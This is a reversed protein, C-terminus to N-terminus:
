KRWGFLRQRLSRKPLISESLRVPHDMYHSQVSFPANEGMEAHLYNGDPMLRRAKLNDKLLNDLYESLMDRIEASSVPCGVEVRRVQNRTMIDASSLFVKREEGEGFCYIRSHELFRGVISTVTINETKGPIGPVICCIGRIILDIKVGACSAESLKDMLERETVSNAKIIIRGKDGKAIEADMMDMLRNKMSNPAVLLKEYEGCLNGILMNEFLNQADQAVATDATMMCFDTYLTSTKENYNGTGIQTIYSFGSKERRTILCVKAHCKCNDPGYIIRCGAEELERSWDINNQEDFRARLEMLVTVEKGNEAAECLAKAIASNRALRYITIKISTVAPDKASQKLLDLFPQISQYPYFLLVDRQAIQERIPQVRNLYEPWVPAYPKEYLEPACNDLMYAYSLKLPCACTYVQKADLKLFGCLMKTLRPAQGQIELRVPALRERKKLLRSMYNLFDPKGDDFKEADFSIDANRTVAIVASEEVNYIKFLKKLNAAVISETRVYRMPTGPLMLIPPVNDPVDAIGLLNKGKMSLVAAAYLAKNKLHPFPHSRDIIQPSLMPRIYEKYYNSVYAKQNETLADYSVEVVGKAALETVLTHYVEDRRAILPRVAKYILELQGSPTLGSKNDTDDPDIMDMDLLSGVRVMFFEDLNSTFISAFRLREILPVNEDMAEALVRENFKLWSLERNQTYSLDWQGVTEVKTEEECRNIGTEDATYLLKGSNYGFM